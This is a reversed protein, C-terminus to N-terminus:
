PKPRPARRSPAKPGGRRKAPPGSPKRSPGSPKRSPGRPKKSPNRLYRYRELPVRGDLVLEVGEAELLARQREAHPGRGGDLSIGGTANIVRWWPVRADRLVHLAYGVRRAHGPRGAAIAVDGYTMVRGRPIARIVRFYAQYEPSAM